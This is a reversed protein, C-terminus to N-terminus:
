RVTVLVSTLHPDQGPEPPFDLPTPLDKMQAVERKALRAADHLFKRLKQQSIGRHNTCALLRGGKAVVALAMSALEAYDNSAAFRSTKTTAFSPPDLIVLDFPGTVRARDRLWTVVDARHTVHLKPDGGVAAINREAWALVNPSIDVTLSQLAGGAVAAVTFAGTYAFLNLVRAGKALEAVRRRNERQDLFIGTSMGDGLLVEFPLGNEHVTLPAAADEGRVAHPPARDEHKGEGLHSSDKPRVKLYVGRAGLNAAADLVRERLAPELEEGLAVLLHEGYVDIAVGPLGDGVGNVIRLCDTKKPDYIGYRRDLARVICAQIAEVDRFPDDEVGHVWAEFSKPVPAEIRLPAGSPHTLQLSSAHLLLRSFPAKGYFEDGAVPAGVAALQVRIQHMRGTEPRCAVLARDGKRFLTHVHTVARQAGREKPRAVRMRGGDDPVLDHVLAGDRPAKGFIAAVYSKKVSREEFQRAISPNASKQKTFLLVGSTDRDLRQHIGLYGPEGRARLFAGLRSWADNPRDPSPAHTAMGEPKDIAILDDDEFVILEPRFAPWLAAISM